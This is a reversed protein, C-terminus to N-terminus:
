IDPVLIVGIKDVFLYCIPEGDSIFMKEHSAGKILYYSIDGDPKSGISM